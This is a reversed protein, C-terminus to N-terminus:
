TMLPQIHQGFEDIGAQFDDFTLMIGRAGPISAAQDLLAAVTAYSGVFAGINFNVAGEPLNIHRATSGEDATKDAAGQDYMWALAGVDAGARYSEWKAMAAEDTEDAIVMCLVYAGVDRGSTQAAALPSWGGNLDFGTSHIEGRKVEEFILEGNRYTDGHKQTFGAVFRDPSQARCPGTRGGAM